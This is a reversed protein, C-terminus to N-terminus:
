HSWLSFLKRPEICVGDVQKGRSGVKTEELRRTRSSPQQSLQLEPLFISLTARPLVQMEQITNVLKM